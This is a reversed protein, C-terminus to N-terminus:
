ELSTKIQLENKLTKHVPCKNAIEELKQKQELNLNGQLKITRIIVELYNKKNECDECDKEHTKTHSLKVEINDLPLKKLTAYMRITMSTCAGLSALLLEYPDPGKNDGGVKSPEDAYFSHDKTFVTQTFKHNQETVLIEGSKLKPTNLSNDTKEIYRSSWCAIMQAAYESDDKNSLLHDAKDLSIFSKPHKAAKYLKEAEDISVIEDLPSHLILLAKGLVSKITKEYEDIDELFQKQIKFVKPGLKVKAEGKSKIDTVDAAFHKKVHAASAPAGITAIAKVEKIHKAALLVAAGGLSHGILLSPAKYNKRLFDAANILDEINSSFNTEEFTGESNGLGTFDFRLVGYGLNVLARSIRVAVAIDKGCTFCHAFLVYNFCPADPLDLIGNLKNNNSVFHVKKPM